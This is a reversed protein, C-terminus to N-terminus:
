WINTLPQGGRNEEGNVRWVSTSQSALHPEIPMASAAQRGPAQRRCLGPWDRPAASRQM